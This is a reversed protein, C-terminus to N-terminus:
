APRAKRRYQIGQNPELARDLARRRRHQSLQDDIMWAPRVLFRPWTRIPPPANAEAALTHHTGFREQLLDAYGCPDSWPRDEDLDDWM